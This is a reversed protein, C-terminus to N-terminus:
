NDNKNDSNTKDEENDNKELEELVTETQTEKDSFKNEFM